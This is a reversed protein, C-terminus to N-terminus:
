TFDQPAHQNLSFAIPILCNTSSTRMLLNSLLHAVDCYRFELGVFVLSVEPVIEVGGIEHLVVTFPKMEFCFVAEAFSLFPVFSRVTKLLCFRARLARINGPSEPSPRPHSRWCM